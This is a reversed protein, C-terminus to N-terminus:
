DNTKNPNKARRGRSSQGASWGPALEEDIRSGCAPCTALDAHLIVGQTSGGPTACALPLNGFTRKHETETLDARTNSLFRRSRAKIVLAWVIEECVPFFEGM